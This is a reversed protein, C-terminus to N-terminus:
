ETVIVDPHWGQPLPDPRTVVVDRLELGEVGTAYLGPMGGPVRSVGYIGDESVQYANDRGMGEPADPNVPPRLDLEGQLGDWPGGAVTQRLRVDSLTVDRVAGRRWAHLHVPGACEGRVGAIRVDHIVGPERGPVRPLASLHIPEARGWYAPTGITTRLVVDSVVVDHIGGGDRSVIGIARNTPGIVLGTAVVDRVPLHTETGIKLACSRSELTCGSIVVRETPAAYARKRTTKLCVADDAGTISCGIVRVDSSGDIDIGDTNPLTMSADLVLDTLAARRCGALHVTWMPADVITLGAVRVDTCGELLIMRPRRDAPARYGNEDVEGVAYAYGSGEIRGPGTITVRTAERAYLLAHWSEEAPTVAEHTRFDDYSPSAVVVAGAEIRLHIDSALVLGGLLYRGPPVTVTCGGAAAVADVASQFAATDLTVGDGVAGHDRVDTRGSPTQTAM